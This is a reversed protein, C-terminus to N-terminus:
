ALKAALHKRASEMTLAKDRVDIGIERLADKAQEDFRFRIDDQNTTEENIWLRVHDSFREYHHRTPLLAYQVAGVDMAKSELSPEFLSDM